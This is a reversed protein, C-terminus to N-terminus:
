GLPVHRAIWLALYFSFIAILPSLYFSAGDKEDTAKLSQSIVNFILLIIFLIVFILIWTIAGWGGAGFFETSVDGNNLISIIYLIIVGVSFVLGAAGGTLIAKGPDAKKTVSEILFCFVSVLLLFVFATIGTKALYVYKISTTDRSMLLAALTIVVSSAIIIIAGSLLRNVYNEKFLRYTGKSPSIFVDWFIKLFSLKPDIGSEAIEMDILDEHNEM